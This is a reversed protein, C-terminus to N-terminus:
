WTTSRSPCGSRRRAPVAPAAPSVRKQRVHLRQLYSTTVRRPDFARRRRGGHRLAAHLDPADPWCDAIAAFTREAGRMVLLYDHVLGISKGKDGVEIVRHM